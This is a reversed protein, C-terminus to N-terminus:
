TIPVTNGGGAFTGDTTLTLPQQWLLIADFGTVGGQGQMQITDPSVQSLTQLDDWSTTSNVHGIFSGDNGPATLTVPQSFQVNYTGDGNDTAGIM